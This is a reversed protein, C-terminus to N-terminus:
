YNKRKKRKKREKIYMKQERERERISKKIVDVVRYFLWVMPDPETKGSSLYTKASGKCLKSQHCPFLSLCSLWGIFCRMKRLYSASPSLDLDRFQLSPQCPMITTIKINSFQVIWIAVDAFSLRNILRAILRRCRQQYAHMQTNNASIYQRVIPKLYKILTKAMLAAAHDVAIYFPLNSAVVSVFRVLLGKPVNGFKSLPDFVLFSLSLSFFFV